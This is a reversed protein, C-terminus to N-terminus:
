AVSRRELERVALKLALELTARTDADDAAVIRERMARVFHGRITQEAAMERVRAADVLVTEDEIELWFFAERLRGLLNETPPLDRPSGTLVATLLLNPDAYRGILAAMEETGLDDVALVKRGVTRQNVKLWELRPAGGEFEILAVAREGVERATLGEPSGPYCAYLGRADQYLHARHIHGLAVYDVELARLQESRLPLYRQEVQQYDPVDVTAHLLALHLGGDGRRLTPLPDPCVTHDYALGHVHVMGDSTPFSSTTFAPETFIHAGPFQYRKWVSGPYSYEDHNGPIIFLRVGAGRLQGCRAQVQGVLTEHPDYRDFLDGALLLAAVERELALDCIREFTALLDQQRQVAVDGLSAFPRGLHVDAAHLIRVTM